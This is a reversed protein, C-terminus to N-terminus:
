KPRPLSFNARNRTLSVRNKSDSALFYTCVGVFYFVTRSDERKGLMGFESFRATSHAAHAYFLHFWLVVRAPPLLVM